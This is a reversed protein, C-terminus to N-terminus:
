NEKLSRVGAYINIVSYIVILIGSVPLAMYVWGMPVNLAPSIQVMTLSVAKSGGFVMIVLGFVTFSFQFFLDLIGRKKEELRDSLLTVAIHGKKGVVYAASLMSLWILSFRLFEESLSSPNNLIYRAFVQWSTIIVMLSFLIITTVEIFRDIIKKTKEM